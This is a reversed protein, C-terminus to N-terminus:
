EDDLRVDVEGVGCDVKLDAKGPGDSWALDRGIFGSGEIDRDRVRLMAEGVGVELNVRRVDAERARITAEGVGIDLSLDSILGIAEFEGVGLDARLALQRPMHVNVDASLGSNNLNKPWGDLEVQLTSGSNRSSLEVKRALERCREKVPRNCNLEVRVVVQGGDTGEVEVEGVPVDLSVAEADDSALNIKLRRMSESDDAHAPAPLLLATVALVALLAAWLNRSPTLTSLGAFPHPSRANPISTM